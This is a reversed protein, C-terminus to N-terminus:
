VPTGAASAAADHERARAVDRPMFVFYAFLLILGAAVFLVSIGAFVANLGFEKKVVGAVLVGVGGAACAATNAIGFATSRFQTPVVECMTPHENALGIGRFLSYVSVAVTVMAFGPNGLFLLLFPAAIFYSFAQVLMRRRSDAVAVRDSLWGGLALGLATCIQLMFTGAFGAAGLKMNFTQGFYLPLWNLFIWVGVGALMVKMLLLHYSPVRVLYNLAESFRVRKQSTAAANPGDSLTRGGLLALLIGAIGLGLFGWRWGFYQALYGASAGGAVVGFNLAMSHISMAQARTAPGHHEALLALAAPLYLCEALGLFVRLVRLAALGTSLGILVTVASWLVLSLIVLKKRSFRDALGGAIPSGIAYSWLFLSGLLGLSADTLGLDQQLQLQVAPMAARDAYNVAIAGSLFAVVRWRPERLLLHLKM